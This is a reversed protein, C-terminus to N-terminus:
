SNNKSERAARKRAKKSLTFEGGFETDTAQNGGANQPSQNKKRKTM